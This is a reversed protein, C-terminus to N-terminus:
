NYKVEIKSNSCFYGIVWTTLLNQVCSSFDWTVQQHNIHTWWSDLSWTRSQILLMFFVLHKFYFLSTNVHSDGQELFSFDHGTGCSKEVVGSVELLKHIGVGVGTIV